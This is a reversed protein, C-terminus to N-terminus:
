MGGLLGKLKGLASTAVAIRLGDGPALITDLAPILAKGERFIAVLVFEGPATLRAAPQGVLAPPVAVEIIEVEGSGLSELHTFGAFCLVSRIQTAGWTTPSITHIGFRRYIEARQPDAIRAIVKPVKFHDRAALAAVINTNDGNTVSVFADAHEIGAEILVDRDFGVGTLFRGKFSKSLRRASAPDKDVITVEHGEQSLMDALQAGVRGCGVIIIHM